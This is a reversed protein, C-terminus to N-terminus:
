SSTSPESRNRTEAAGYRKLAALAIPEEPLDYESGRLKRWGGRVRWAVSMGESLRPDEPIPAGANLAAEFQLRYRYLSPRSIGERYLQRVTASLRPTLEESVEQLDATLKESRVELRRTEAQLRLVWADKERNLERRKVWAMVFSAVALVVAVVTLWVQSALAGMVSTVWAAFALFSPVRSSTGRDVVAAATRFILFDWEMQITPPIRDRLEVATRLLQLRNTAVQWAVAATVLGAVGTSIPAVWSYDSM